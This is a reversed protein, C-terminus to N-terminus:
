SITYPEARTKDNGAAFIHWRKEDNANAAAQGVKGTGDLSKSL